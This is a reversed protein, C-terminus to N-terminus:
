PASALAKGAEYAQKLTDEREEIEGKADVGRVLVYLDERPKVSIADFFYKLTMIAGNFLNQGRTGGVGIFSGLRIPADDEHPFKEKLVYKLAWYCQCRDIVAKTQSTLGMFFIPSAIIIRDAREIAEYIADMDDDITCTGSEFCDECETCGSIEYDCLIIKEVEAGSEKAGVLARDLLTETNGGRRPSGLLGVVKLARVM